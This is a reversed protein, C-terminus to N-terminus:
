KEGMGGEGKRNKKFPNPYVKLKIEFAFLFLSIM